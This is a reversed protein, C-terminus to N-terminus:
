APKGPKPLRIASAIAALAGPPKQAFEGHTHEGQSHLSGGIRKVEGSALLRQLGEEARAPPVSHTRSFLAADFVGRHMSLWDQVLELLTDDSVSELKRIRASLASIQRELELSALVSEESSRLLARNKSLLSGLDAHADSCKKALSEYPTGAVKEAASLSPLLLKALESANAHMSPFLSVVRLLTACARMEELEPSLASPSSITMSLSTRQLRIELGSVPLNHMGRRSKRITVASKTTSVSDFGLNSLAATSPPFKGTFSVPISRELKFQSAAQM